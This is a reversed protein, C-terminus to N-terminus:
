FTPQTETRALSVSLASLGLVLISAKQVVVGANLVAAESVMQVALGVGDLRLSLVFRDLVHHGLSRPVDM